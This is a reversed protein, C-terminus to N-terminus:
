FNKRQCSAILASLLAGIREFNAGFLGFLAFFAYVM